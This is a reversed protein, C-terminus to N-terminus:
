FLFKNEESNHELHFNFPPVDVEIKEHKFDSEDELISKRIMLDIKKIKLSKQEITNAFIPFTIKAIRRWMDYSEPIEMEQNLIFCHPYDNKLTSIADINWIIEEKLKNMQKVLSEHLGLGTVSVKQHSKMENLVFNIFKWADIKYAQNLIPVLKKFRTQISKSFKKKKEEFINLERLLDEESNSNLIESNPKYELVLSLDTNEYVKIMEIECLECLKKSIKLEKSKQFTQLWIQINEEKEEKLKFNELNEFYLFYYIIEFIIMGISDMEIIEQNLKKQFYEFKNLVMRHSPIIENKIKIKIDSFEKSKYFKSFVSNEVKKKEQHFLKEEGEIFIEDSNKFHQFFELTKFTFFIPGKYLQLTYSGNPNKEYLHKKLNHIDSTQIFSIDRNDWRVIYFNSM